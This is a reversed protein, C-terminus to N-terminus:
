RTAVIQQREAATKFIWGTPLTLYDLLLILETDAFCNNSLWAHVRCSRKLSNSYDENISVACSNDAHIVLGLTKWFMAGAM